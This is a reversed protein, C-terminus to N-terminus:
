VGAKEVRAVPAGSMIPFYHVIATYALLEIAVLGATITIEGLSPFYSWEQGPQFAVIFPAMFLFKVAKLTRVM